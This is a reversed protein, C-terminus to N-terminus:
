KKATWNRAIECPDGADMRDKAGQALISGGGTAFALGITGLTKVAGAKDIGIGPSNLPGQIRVAQALNGLGVGIGGRAKPRVNLDVRETGLNITGSSQVQLEDSVFAIGNNTTAVGNDIVLNVVACKAITYESKSAMPNIASAVQALADAGVVNLTGRKIRGEGMGATFTGDLSAAVDHMSNGAGRVNLRLDIPGGMIQEGKKIEKAIGEATFGNGEVSLAVSKDGANANLNGSLTGGAIGLSFPAVALKGQAMSVPLVVNTATMGGAMNLKGVSIKVDADAGKLADWSLPTVPFMQPSKEQAATSLLTYEPVSVTGKIQPRKNVVSVQLDTEAKLGMAELALKAPFPKNLAVLVAVPALTGSAKVDEGNLKGAVDLKGDKDLVLKSFAAEVPAGDSKYSVKADSVAINTVGLDSIKGRADMVFKGVTATTASKADKLSVSADAVEVKTVAMAALPGDLSVDVSKLGVTAAQGTKGDKYSLKLNKAGLAGVNLAADGSKAPAGAPAAGTFEWNGKGQRDTELWLDPDEATISAIDIKGSLLPILSLHAEASKLVVMQPRSGWPANALTVDSLTVAPTLSFAMKIDGIAVDRGTAAKAQDQILGKYKGIDFTAIFIALVVVLVAIVIGAIKAIKM